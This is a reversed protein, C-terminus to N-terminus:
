GCLRADACLYSSAYRCLAGLWQSLAAAAPPQRLQNVTHARSLMVRMFMAEFSCCVSEALDTQLHRDLVCRRKALWICIYRPTVTSNTDTPFLARGQARFQKKRGRRTANLTERWIHEEGELDM